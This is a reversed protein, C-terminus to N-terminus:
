AEESDWEKLIAAWELVDTTAVGASELENALRIQARSFDRELAEDDLYRDFFSGMHNWMDGSTLYRLAADANGSVIEERIRTITDADPEGSEVLLLEIQELIVAIADWDVRGAQDGM